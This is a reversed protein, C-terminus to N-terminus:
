VRIDLGSSNGSVYLEAQLHGDPFEDNDQKARDGFGEAGGDEGEGAFASQQEGDQKLSFQLDDGGANLGANELARELGRQDRLFMDLTEPREVILHAQVSGDAAVKMNIDVRGLEPPDLRMQFRTQGNQLNRSIAAAIQVSAANMQARSQQSATESQSLTSVEIRGGSRGDLPMSIELDGSSAEDVVDSVAVYAASAAVATSVAGSNAAPSADAAGSGQAATATGPMAGGIRAPTVEVPEVADGTLTPAVVGDPDVDVIPSMSNVGGVQRGAVDAPMIVGGAQAVVQQASQGAMEVPSAVSAGSGNGSLLAAASEGTQPADSLVPVDVPVKLAGGQVVDAESATPAGQRVYVGHLQPLSRAEQGARAVEPLNAQWRRPQSLPLEVSGESSTIAGDAQAGAAPATTMVVDAAPTAAGSPGSLGEARVSAQGKVPSASGLDSSVEGSSKQATLSAAASAADTVVPKALGAGTVGGEVAPGKGGIPAEAADSQEPVDGGLAGGSASAQPATLLPEKSTRGRGAPTEAEAAALGDGAQSGLAGDVSVFKSAPAPVSDASLAKVAPPAAGEVPLGSALDNPVALDDRSAELSPLVSFPDEGLTGGATGSVEPVVPVASGGDMMGPDFAEDSHDALSPLVEGSPRVAVASARGETLPVSPADVADGQALYSQFDSGVPAAAGSVSGGAVLAAASVDTLM